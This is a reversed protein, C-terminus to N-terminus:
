LLEKSNKILAEWITKAVIKHKINKNRIAFLHLKIPEFNSINKLPILKKEKLEQTIYYEPIMGWAKGQLIIIKKLFFDNVYWKRTEEFIGMSKETGNSIVVQPLLKLDEETIKKKKLLECNSAIVHYVMVENLFAKELNMNTNKVFYEPGIILDYNKNELYDSVKEMYDISITLKTFPFELMTDNIINLIKSIDFVPDIAIKFEPEIGNKLSKAYEELLNFENLINKAKEYFARGEETLVARYSNKDFIEINLEQELKKIATSIAPQSIFLKESAKRISGEKVISDIFKINEINM